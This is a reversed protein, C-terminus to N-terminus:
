KKVGARVLLMMPRRLEDEMGPIDMMEKPPEAEEVAELIFGQRLLGMLIQTMTHHQKTVECGLFHTKREGPRFYDDVPWYKPKGEETYVWDQGVGATFVPHEINFIFVGDARLTRYVKRFVQEIDEIYHLALNSIVCDWRNEPYEYEEIGCVRYTIRSDANRRGAEEIMRESIDMGLVCSAGKEVSFKCHWGYGCGLDLVDKGSLPPFLPKLQHWEGAANLGERSRPMKAYEAFFKENDYENKM